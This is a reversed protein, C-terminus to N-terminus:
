TEVFRVFFFFGANRTLTPAALFCIVHALAIVVVNVDKDNLTPRQVNSTKVEAAFASRGVDFTSNQL